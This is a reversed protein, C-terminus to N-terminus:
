CGPRMAVIVSYRWLSMARPRAHHAPKKSSSANRCASVGVDAPLKVLDAGAVTAPKKSDEAVLVRLQPYLWGISRILREVSKSRQCTRVIATLRSFDASPM